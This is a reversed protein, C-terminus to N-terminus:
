RTYFSNVIQSSSAVKTAFCDAKAILYAVGLLMSFSTPQGVNLRGRNNDITFRFPKIQAGTAQAALM